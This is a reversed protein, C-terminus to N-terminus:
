GTHKVAYRYDRVGVGWDHEINVKLARTDPDTYIDIQPTEKGAVFVYVVPSQSVDAFLYYATSSSGLEEEIIPTLGFFPNYVGTPLDATPQTNSRCITGISVENTGNGVLFRPVLGLLAGNNTQARLKASMSGVNTISPAGGSSLLNNHTADFIAVGDSAVDNNAIPLWCDQNLRRAAARGAAAPVKAVASLDDNALLTYPLSVINSFNNIKIVVKSDTLKKELPKSHGDWADLYGIEDLSIVNVNKLDRSSTLREFCFQYTTQATQYAEALIKNAADLTLNPLSGPTNYAQDALWARKVLEENRWYSCEVGQAELCKRAHEALGFRSFQPDVQEDKQPLWSVTKRMASLLAQTQAQAQREAGNSVVVVNPKTAQQKEAVKDLLIGRAKEISDCTECLEDAIEALGVRTAEKRIATLLAREEKRITEADKTEPLAAVAKEVTPLQEQTEKVADTTKESVTEESPNDFHVISNLHEKAIKANKDGPINVLSVEAATFSTAVRTNGDIKRGRITATKGSPVFKEDLLDAGISVSDVDGEEVQAFVDPRTKNIHIDGLIKGNEVRINRMSGVNSTISDWRHSDLLPVKKGKPIRFGDILFLLNYPSGDAALRPILSETLITATFKHSGDEAQEKALQATLYERHTEM